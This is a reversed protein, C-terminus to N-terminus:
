AHILLLAQVAANVEEEFTEADTLFPILAGVLQLNVAGAERKKKKRRDKLKPAKDEEAEAVEAVLAPATVPEHPAAADSVVLPAVVSVPTAVVVDPVVVPGPAIAAVQAPVTKPETWPLAEENSTAAVQSLPVPTTPLVTTPEAAVPTITVAPAVVAAATPLSNGSAAFLAVFPPVEQLYMTLCDAYFRATEQLTWKKTNLKATQIYEYLFGTDAGLTRVYWEKFQETIPHDPAFQAFVQAVADVGAQPYMPGALQEMPAEGIYFQPLPNGSEDLLASMSVCWGQSEAADDPCFVAVVEKNDKYYAVDKLTGLTGAAFGGEAAALKARTGNWASLLAFTEIMLHAMADEDAKSM